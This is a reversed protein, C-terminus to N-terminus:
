FCRGKCILTMGLTGYPSWGNYDAKGPICLIGGVRRGVVSKGEVVSMLISNFNRSCGACDILVDMGGGHNDPGVALNGGLYRQKSFM